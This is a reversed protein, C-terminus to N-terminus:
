ISQIYHADLKTVIQHSYRILIREIEGESISFDGGTSIGIIGIPTKQGEMVLAGIRNTGQSLLKHSFASDMKAIEEAGGIFIGEKYYKSIFPYGTIPINKWANVSYLPKDHAVIREYTMDMYFFPMGSLNNTGNHFELIFAADAGTEYCIRELLNNIDDEISLRHEMLRDHEDEQVTIITEAVWHVIEKYNYVGICITALLVMKFIFELFKTWPNSVVYDFIKIAGDAFNKLDFNAMEM